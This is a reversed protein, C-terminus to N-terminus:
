FRLQLRLGAGGVRVDSIGGPSRPILWPGVDVVNPAAGPRWLALPDGREWRRHRERRTLGIIMYTLGTGFMLGGEAVGAFGYNRLGSCGRTEALPCLETNSASVAMLVGAGARLLGLSFLVSGITLEDDGDPPERSREHQEAITWYGGPVTSEAPRPTEAPGSEAPRNEAPSTPSTEAPPVEVSRETEPPSIAGVLAFSLLLPVNGHPHGPQETFAFEARRTISAGGPTADACGISLKPGLLDIEGL